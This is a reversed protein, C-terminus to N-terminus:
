KVVQAADLVAECHECRQGPQPVLKATRYIYNRAVTAMARVVHWCMICRVEVSM